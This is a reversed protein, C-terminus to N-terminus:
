LVRLIDITHKMGIYDSTSRSGNGKTNFMCLETEIDIKYIIIYIHWTINFDWLGDSFM